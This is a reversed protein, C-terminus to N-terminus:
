RAASIQADAFRGSAVVASSALDNFSFIPHSTLFPPKCFLLRFGGAMGQFGDWRVLVLGSNSVTISREDTIQMWRM